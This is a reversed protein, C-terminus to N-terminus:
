KQYKDEIDSTDIGSDFTDLPTEMMKKTYEEKEKKRKAATKIIIVVAIIAIIGGIIILITPLVDNFNTPHSMIREGTSTFTDSIMTELTLSTDYYNGEFYGWFIKLAEADMITDVTSGQFYRFEGEMESKMDNEAAFYVFMFHAEDKFTNEYIASLHKDMAEANGSGDSNWFSDNYPELLVYPQVGTEHYFNELGEILVQKSSVWNLNDKYWDTKTVQQSLATRQTTNQTTEEMSSSELIGKFLSIACIAIIVVVFVSIPACGGGGGGRGYFVRRGGRPIFVPGHFGGGSHGSSGRGFGGFGGGGGSSRGGGSFGGSSRGGSFGGGSRGGGGGGGSRGMRKLDMREVFYYLWACNYM